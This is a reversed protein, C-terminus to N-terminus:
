CPAAPGAEQTVCASASLEATFFRHTGLAWVWGLKRKGNPQAPALTHAVPTSQEPEFPYEITTRVVTSGAPSKMAAVMRMPQPLRGNVPESPPAPWASALLMPAGQSM